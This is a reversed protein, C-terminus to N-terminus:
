IGMKMTLDDNLFTRYIGSKIDRRHKYCYLIAQLNYRLNDSNEKKPQLITRIFNGLMIGTLSLLLKLKGPLNDFHMYYFSFHDEHNVFIRKKDDYRAASSERHHVKCKPTLVLSGKGYKKYIRYSSDIDSLVDYGKTEPWLYDKYIESRLCENFGPLWQANRIEKKIQPGSTNGYPGIVRFKHDEKYPLFFIKLLLNSIKNVFKKFDYKDASIEAGGIGMVEPHENFEEILKEFYNELFDVDDGTTLILPYKDRAKKIGINGAINASLINLHIYEVPLKESYKKVVKKTKDDKSQDIIIIKGPIHKKGSLSALTKSIDKARNYTPVIM